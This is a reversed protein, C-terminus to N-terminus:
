AALMISFLGHAHIAYHKSNRGAKRRLALITYFHQLKFLGKFDEAAAIQLLVFGKRDTFTPTESLFINIERSAGKADM